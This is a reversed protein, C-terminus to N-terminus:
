GDVGAAQLAEALQYVAMAYLRSHNYRTIVYFNQHGIWAQAKGGVDFQMVSMLGETKHHPSLGNKKLTKLSRIPKLQEVVLAKWRQDTTAVQEAVAEGPRWGHRSFYNAVSGIIDAPNQWLDRKGDQDFDVAYARYSSAIFQPMGMAAAYSGTVERPDFGEEKALLLFETLERRFFDARPPYGFALTGLAALANHKGTIRGYFTEVGIIATIIRAPVGYTAEAKALWDRHEAAFTLGARIRKETLFIARYEEWTLTREAPRSILEIVEEQVSLDAFLKELAELDLAHERSIALLYNKVDPNSGLNEGPGVGSQASVPMLLLALWLAGLRGLINLQVM